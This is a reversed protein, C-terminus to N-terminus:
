IYEEDLLKWVVSKKVKCGGTASPTCGSELAAAIKDMKEESTAYQILMKYATSCKVGDSSCDEPKSTNCPQKESQTSLSVQTIDAAPNEALLTLLKCPARANDPNQSPSSAKTCSGACIKTPSAESNRSSSELPGPSIKSSCEESEYTKMPASEGEKTSVNRAESKAGTQLACTSKVKQARKKSMLELMLQHREGDNLCGDEKVWADIANDAYGIRRLLDRLKANERAVRQAALQVEKTAQVGHERTEAVRRELDFVYEKHRARHRRKNDRVRAARESNMEQCSLVPAPKRGM